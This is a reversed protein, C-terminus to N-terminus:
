SFRCRLALTRRLGSRVYAVRGKETRVEVLVELWLMGRSGNRVITVDRGRAKAEREIAAAVKDALPLRQRM